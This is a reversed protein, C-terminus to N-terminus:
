VLYYLQLYNCSYAYGYSMYDLYNEIDRLNQFRAWIQFACANTCKRMYLLICIYALQMNISFNACIQQRRLKDLNANNFYAYKSFGFKGMNTWFTRLSCCTLLISQFYFPLNLGNKSFNIKKQLRHFFNHRCDKHVFM